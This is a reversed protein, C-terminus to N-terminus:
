VNTHKRSLWQVTLDTLGLPLSPAPIALALGGGSPVQRPKHLEQELLDTFSSAMNRGQGAKAWQATSHATHQTGPVSIVGTTCLLPILRFGTKRPNPNLAM